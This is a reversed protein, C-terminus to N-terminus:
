MVNAAYAYTFIAVGILLGFHALISLGPGESWEDEEVATAHKGGSPLWRLLLLLGFAAVGVTLVM